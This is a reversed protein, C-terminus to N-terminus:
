SQHCCAATPLLATQLPDPPRLVLPVSLPGVQQFFPLKCFLENLSDLDAATKEWPRTRLSRKAAQLLAKRLALTRHRKTIRTAKNGSGPASNKMQNFGSPPEAGSPSTEAKRGTLGCQVAPLVAEPISLELTLLAASM